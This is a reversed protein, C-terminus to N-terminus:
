KTVAINLHEKNAVQTATYHPKIKVIGKVLASPQYGLWSKAFSYYYFICGVEKLWTKHSKNVVKFHTAGDPANRVLEANNM